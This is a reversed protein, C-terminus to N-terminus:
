LVKHNMQSISLMANRLAENTISHHSKHWLVKKNQIVFIQPSQHTITFLDAVYNSIERHTQVIIMGIRSNWGPYETLFAEVQELAYASTGCSNSHKFLIVANNNSQDLLKELMDLSQIIKM